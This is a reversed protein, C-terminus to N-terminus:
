HSLHEVGFLYLLIVSSMMEGAGLGPHLSRGLLLGGVSDAGTGAVAASARNWSLSVFFRLAGEEVLRCLFSFGMSCALLNFVSPRTMREQISEYSLCGVCLPLSLVCPMVMCRGMVGIIFCSQFVTM